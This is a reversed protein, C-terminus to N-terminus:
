VIIINNAAKDAPALVYESHFKQLVHKIKRESMVPPNPLHKPNSKYFSIRQNIIEFIKQKWRRLADISVNERKCWKSCFNDISPVIDELCSDFNIKTPLRYKPGKKFLYRIRKDVLSFDGTIIHGAPLYCFKSEQCKCSDPTKEEINCDSVTKNYNFLLNRIPKKYKYCIIPSERNKFYDPITAIVEKNKFISPLDILDVGKNLFNIKLFYRKHHIAEDIHPRLKHKTYNQVICATLYLPDSRLIIKEAEVDIKNLISVSTSALVSLMAHTGSQQRVVNLHILSLNARNKRRINRNQRRGHSRAKRKRVSCLSFIDINADRSINGVQYINDNLGLPYPTQM